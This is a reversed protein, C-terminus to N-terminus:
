QIPFFGQFQVLKVLRNGRLRVMPNNNGPQWFPEGLVDHLENQQRYYKIEFEQNSELELCM